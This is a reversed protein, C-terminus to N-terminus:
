DSAGRSFLRGLFGSKAAIKPELIRGCLWFSGSAIGGVVPPTEVLDPDSVVDIEGGLTRVRMWQYGGGTLPNVLAATDLIRGSFIAISQPPETAGGDPNFLGAPIFSESAFKVEGDQSADFAEETEYLSLEHAFASLRVPSTFPFDLDGHVGWDVVDFVFPYAGSEPEDGKPDAWGHVAGELASDDPRHVAATIAVRMESKGNFYPTGGFIEHSGDVLLWLEAGQESAWRFYAGEPCMVAKSNEAAENVLDSLAQDSEM